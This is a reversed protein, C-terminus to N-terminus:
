SIATPFASRGNNTSDAEPFRNDFNAVASLFYQGPPFTDDLM